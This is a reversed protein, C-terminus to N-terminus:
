PTKCLWSFEAAVPSAESVTEAVAYGLRDPGPPSARGSVPNTNVSSRSSAEGASGGVSEDVRASSSAGVVRDRAPVGHELGYSRGSM